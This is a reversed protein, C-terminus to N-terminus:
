RGKYDDVVQNWREEPPLDLDIIYRPVCRRVHHARNAAMHGISKKGPMKEELELEAVSFIPSGKERGTHVRAAREVEMESELRKSSWQVLLYKNARVTASACSRAREVVTRVRNQQSKKVM